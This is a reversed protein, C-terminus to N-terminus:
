NIKDIEPSIPKLEKVLSFVYLCELAIQNSRELYKEDQQPTGDFAKPDDYTTGIRLEVGPIFPCNEEADSCTMIAAFNSKPNVEDDYVKSFCATSEKDGFRVTFHANSETSEPTVELGTATLANIANANFATAETGGSFTSVNSIHYYHAAVAAWVQGFHSRRSNHTCVYVLNVPLDLARKSDIYKSIHSLLLKREVSITDFKAVLEDCHQEINKFLM